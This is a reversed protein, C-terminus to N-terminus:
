KRSVAKNYDNAASVSDLHYMVYAESSDKLWETMEKMCTISKIDCKPKEEIVRKYITEPDPDVLKGAWDYGIISPITFFIGTLFCILREKFNFNSSSSPVGMFFCIAIILTFLSVIYVIIGCIFYFTPNM